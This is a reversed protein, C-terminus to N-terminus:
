GATSRPPRVANLDANAQEIAVRVRERWDEPVPNQAGWPQTLSRSAAVLAGLGQRDFAGAVDAAGGGQAGYGPVLLWARPLGGRLRELEEPWTAGAVAGIPGYGAGAPQLQRLLAAVAAFLPGEPTELSQLERASPNSTRVLVFFGAEERLAVELFPRLGDSGFYPAVTCADAVRQGGPRGLWAEAYAAATSGIDGRKVDAIVTLGRERAARCLAVYAAMGPPGLIEFFAVQPKVAPVRDSALDLVEEGWRRYAEAWSEPSDAATTPRLDAPLADPRPDLGLCLCSDTSRVRQELRAAFTM